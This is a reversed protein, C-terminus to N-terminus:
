RQIGSDDAYRVGMPCWTPANVTLVDINLWEFTANKWVEQKKLYQVHGDFFGVNAGESHRYSPCNWHTMGTKDYISDGTLDWNLKYNAVYDFLSYDMGDMFELKSAVQRISSRKFTYGGPKTYDWGSDKRSLLGTRNYGYSTGTINGMTDMYLGKNAVTRKDSKCKYKAPLTNPVPNKKTIEINKEGAYGVIKRFLSNYYWVPNTGTRNNFTYRMEPGGVVAVYLDQCETAYTENSLLLSKVNGACTMKIAQQRAKNLAPMLVALLLAIISIVVLLEVLTFANKNRM